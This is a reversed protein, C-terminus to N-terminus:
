CNEEVLSMLALVHNHFLASPATPNVFFSAPKLIHFYKPFLPVHVQFHAFLVEDTKLMM